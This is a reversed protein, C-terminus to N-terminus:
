FHSCAKLTKHLIHVCILVNTIPKIESLDHKDVSCRPRKGLRNELVFIRDETTQKCIKVSYAIKYIRLIKQWLISDYYAFKRFANCHRLQVTTSQM